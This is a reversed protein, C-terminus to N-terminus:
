GGVYRTPADDNHIAEHPLHLSPTSHQARHKYVGRRLAIQKPQEM